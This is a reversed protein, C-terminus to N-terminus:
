GDLARPVVFKLLNIREPEEEEGHTALEHFADMAAADRQNKEPSAAMMGAAVDDLRLKAPAVITGVVGEWYIVDDPPVLDLRLLERQATEVVAKDDSACAVVGNAKYPLVWVLDEAVDKSAPKEARPWAAYVFPVGLYPLLAARADATSDFAGVFGASDSVVVIDAM